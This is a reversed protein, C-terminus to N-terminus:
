PICSCLLAPWALCISLYISPYIGLNIPPRVCARVVYSLPHAQQSGGGEAAEAQTSHRRVMNKNWRSPGPVNRTTHPTCRVSGTSSNQTNPLPAASGTVCTMMIDRNKPERGDERQLEDPSRFWRESIPMDGLGEPQQELDPAQLLTPWTSVCICGPAACTSAEERRACVSFRCLGKRESECLTRIRILSPFLSLRM